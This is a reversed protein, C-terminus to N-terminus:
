RLTTPIDRARIATRIEDSFISAGLAAEHPLLRAALAEVLLAEGCCFRYEQWAALWRSRLESSVRKAIRNRSIGDEVAACAAYFGDRAENLRSEDM